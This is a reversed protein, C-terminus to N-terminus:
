SSLQALSLPSVMPNQWTSTGSSWVSFLKLSDHNWLRPPNPPLSHSTLFHARYAGALKLNKTIPFLFITYM